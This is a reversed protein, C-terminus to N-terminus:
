RHERNQKRARAVGDGTGELVELREEEKSPTGPLPSVLGDLDDLVRHDGLAERGQHESLVELHGLRTERPVLLGVRAARVHHDLEGTEEVALELDRALVALRDAVLQHELQGVRGAELRRHEVRARHLERDLVDVRVEAADLELEVGLTAEGELRAVDEGREEGLVRDEGLLAEGLPHLALDQSAVAGCPGRHSRCRIRHDESGTLSVERPLGASVYRRFAWLTIGSSTDAAAEGYRVM